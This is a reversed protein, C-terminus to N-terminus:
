AAAPMARWMNLLSRFEDTKLGAEVAALADAIHEALGAHIDGKKFNKGNQEYRPWPADPYKAVMAEIMEEKTATKIGSGALKVETPTIQIIPLRARVAALIGLSVGYSVMARASQSGVPVEVFAIARGALLEVVGDHLTGARELDESNKRVVKKKVKDKEPETTVVHMDEVQIDLTDINLRARVVGFNSLSPDLGIISITRSM